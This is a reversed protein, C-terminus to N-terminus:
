VSSSIQGFEDQCTGDTYIKTLSNETQRKGNMSTKPRHVVFYTVVRLCKDPLKQCDHLEIKLDALFRHSATLDSHVERTLENIGVIRTIAM